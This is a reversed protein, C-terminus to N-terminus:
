SARASRPAACAPSVERRDRAAPAADGRHRPRAQREDDQQSPVPERAAPYGRAAAGQHHQDDAGREPPRRDRGLQRGQPARDDRGSADRRRAPGRRHRPLGHDLEGRSPHARHHLRRCQHAAHHGAQHRGGRAAGVDDAGAAGGAFVTQGTQYPIRTGSLMSAEKGNLTVLKPSALVRANGDQILADLFVRFAKPLRDFNRLKWVDNTGPTGPIGPASTLGGPEDLSGGFTANSTGEVFTFGQRNLLDWDIGLKKLGDTSVEVIRAELMVQRAPLDLQQVIAQMDAIVRPSTVVILRNGGRDVQINDSLGKLAAAVDNADAYQLAITYSSLGTEDRLSRADAVLISNGIREYALGAARVVLNVAQEVPVDKLHITIEGASVGPGTVINLDGKEALIKLVAPLGADDADLSIPRDLSAARATMFTSVLLALLLTMRRLPHRFPNVTM